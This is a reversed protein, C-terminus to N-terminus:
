ETQKKKSHIKATLFGAAFGCILIIFFLIIKSMNIEWFLLKLSVVATNQILIILMIIIIALLIIQKSNM